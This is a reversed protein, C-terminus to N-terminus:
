VLGEYLFLAACIAAVGLCWYFPQMPDFRLGRTGLVGVVLYLLGFGGLGFVIFPAASSAFTYGSLAMGLALVVAVAGGTARTMSKQQLPVRRWFVWARLACRVLSWVLSLLAAIALWLCRVLEVVLMLAAQALYFIPEM